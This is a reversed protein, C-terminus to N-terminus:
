KRDVIAACAAKFASLWDPYPVSPPFKFAITETRRIRMRIYADDACLAPTVHSTTLSKPDGIYLLADFRDQMPESGRGPPAPFYSLFPAAGLATGPLPVLSPVRWSAADAQLMALEGSIHTWITYIREAGENELLGVLGGPRLLHTGGYIVLARRNQNLVERKIADAAWRDRNAFQRVDDRGHVQDWDIPSDGLVVRLQRPAPLSANVARVTRFFEEYIPLDWVHIPATTNQWVQRLMEYPVDDGRVFRDMVEQYKTNGFEVVIDNVVAAFRPDRVLARLFVHLQESGHEEGIAVLQHTRVAEVIAASPDIPVAPKAPLTQAGLALILVILSAM